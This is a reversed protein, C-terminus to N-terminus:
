DSAHRKKLLAQRFANKARVLLTGVSTETIALAQALERYSLGEYRLLLLQRERTPLTELTARVWARREASEMAADPPMPPDALALAARGDSLIREHRKVGQRQNRFLNNAVTALWARPDDPMSGRQYLRVFTEQAIDAALAPDDSLRTLYRLLSTHRGEFERRFMDEFSPTSSPGATM